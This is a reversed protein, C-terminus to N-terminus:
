AAPRSHRLAVMTGRCSATGCLCRYLPADEEDGEFGFDLFLEEGAAIERTTEIFVRRGPYILAECNPECSHNFFRARCRSKTADLVYRKGIGMLFTSSGHCGHDDGYLDDAQKATILRGKYEAVQTGAPIAQLAFVGKGHVPSQRVEILPSKRVRGTRGHVEDNREKKPAPEGRTPFQWREADLLGAEFQERFM